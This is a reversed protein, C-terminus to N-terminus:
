PKITCKPAERRVMLLRNQPAKNRIHSALNKSIQLGQRKLLFLKGLNEILVFIHKNKFV